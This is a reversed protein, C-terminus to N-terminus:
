REALGAVLKHRYYSDSTSPARARTIAGTHLQMQYMDASKHRTEAKFTLAAFMNVKRESRWVYHVTVRVTFYLRWGDKLYPLAQLGAQTIAEPANIPPPLHLTTQSTPTKSRVKRSRAPSTDTPPSLPAQHSPRRPSASSSHLPIPSFYSQTCYITLYLLTHLTPSTM